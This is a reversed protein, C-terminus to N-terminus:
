LLENRVDHTLSLSQVSQRGLVKARDASFLLSERERESSRDLNIEKKRNSNRIKIIFSVKAHM